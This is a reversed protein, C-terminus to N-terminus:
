RKKNGSGKENLDKWDDWGRAQLTKRDAVEENDSDDDEQNQKAEEEKMKAEDMRAKEKDGLEALTMTPLNNPRFVYDRANVQKHILQDLPSAMINYQPMNGNQNPNNCDGCTNVM